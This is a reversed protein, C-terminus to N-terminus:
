QRTARESAIDPDAARGQDRLLADYIEHKIHDNYGPMSLMEALQKRAAPVFKPWNMAIFKNHHGAMARFKDSRGPTDPHQQLEGRIFQTQGEYFVGCMEKALRRILVVTM